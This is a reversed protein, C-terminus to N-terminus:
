APLPALRRLKLSIALCGLLGLALVSVVAPWRGAEWVLGSASGLVSGGLYYATLYLASALARARLARRGVWSSAVSHAGFFGLTCIALGAIVVALQMALTLLLGAAMAAVMLWLVNRRGIRDALQGAWTSAGMGVVYLSFVLGLQGPGLNFPAEHLRYGLYNYVSVFCGMLLFATAFLWPLGGDRLHAHADRWLAGLAIPQPAFHRSPPLNRWFALAAAVGIAGLAGIAVRWSFWEALLAALFRGSMGGLANGAIYLGMVRGLVAPEMEESLYAMAAAPLGALALGLLARLVLLSAFDPALASALMLVAGLALAANMVPKRGWRDALLSAPILGLALLGTTASVVGSAASPSVAFAQSFQPMLPQPSYVLAFTGFGGVFVGFATRRFDPTGAALRAPAPASAAPFPLALSPASM